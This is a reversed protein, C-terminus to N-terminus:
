ERGKREDVFRRYVEAVRAKERRVSEHLRPNRADVRARNAAENAARVLQVRRERSGAGEYQRRLESVSGMAQAVDVISIEKALQPSHPRGYLTRNGIYYHSGDARSRFGAM